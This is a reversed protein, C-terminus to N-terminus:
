ELGLEERSLSVPGKRKFSSRLSRQALSRVFDNEFGTVLLMEGALQDASGDVDFGRAELRRVIEDVVEYAAGLQSADGGECIGLGDTPVADLIEQSVGLYEALWKVETGKWLHQIMGFDGVDGHLTWFGMMYESLNDTSLVLGGIRNAVYYTGLAMRLRAKVNGLSVRDVATLHLGLAILQEDVGLMLRVVDTKYIDTLDLKVEMAGFAEIAMRGLREHEADSECPLLLGISELKFGEAYALDCAKAALGITVASDLGGSVGTVVYHINWKKCYELLGRSAREAVAKSNFDNIM